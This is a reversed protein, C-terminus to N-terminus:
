LSQGTKSKATAVLSVFPNCIQGMKSHYYLGNNMGRVWHFVRNIRLYAVVEVFFNPEEIKNGSYRFYKSENPICDM